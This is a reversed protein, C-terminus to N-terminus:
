FELLVIASLSLQRQKGVSNQNTRMPPVLKLKFHLMRAHRYKYEAHRENTEEKGGLSSPMMVMCVVLMMSVM